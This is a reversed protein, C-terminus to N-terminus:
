NSHLLENRSPDQHICWSHGCFPAELHAQHDQLASPYHSLAQPRPIQLGCEQRSLNAWVQPLLVIESSPAKPHPHCVTREREKREELVETKKDRFHPHDGTTVVLHQASCQSLQMYM